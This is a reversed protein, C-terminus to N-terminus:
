THIVFSTKRRKMIEEKIESMVVCWDQDELASVILKIINGFLLSWM